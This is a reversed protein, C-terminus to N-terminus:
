DMYPRKSDFYMGKRGKVLFVEPQKVHIVESIEGNLFASKVDLHHIKWRQLAALAILILITEFRVVHGFVEEYDIGKRQSYGKVLLLAKHKIVEGQPNKKLKFIWKLGIPRCNPPPIELEWTNKRDIALMEERMACRWVEAHSAKSYSLPEESSLLYFEEDQTIPITESYLDTLSSYRPPHIHKSTSSSTTMETNPTTVEEEEDSQDIEQAHDSLFNPLFTLSHSNQGQTSWTWKEGQEFVVDCSIIVKSNLPDFCCYAKSGLEYGIFLMPKSKDELRSLHGKTEKVHVISGFISMHDVSPKRGNWMEHPTQGQLAKTSCRNLIYVCTSIAEGWLERPLDKAKLM